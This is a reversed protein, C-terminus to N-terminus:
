PLTLCSSQPSKAMSLNISSCSIFGPMLNIGIFFLLLLSCLFLIIGISLYLLARRHSNWAKEFPADFLSNLAGEEFRGHEKIMEDYKKAFIPTLEMFHQGILTVEIITWLSAFNFLITLLLLTMCTLLLPIPVTKFLSTSASVLLALLGASLTIIVKALDNRFTWNLQFEKKFDESGDRGVQVFDSIPKNKETKAEFDPNRLNAM